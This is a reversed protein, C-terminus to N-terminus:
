LARRVEMAGAPTLRWRGCAASVSRQRAQGFRVGGPASRWRVRRCVPASTGDPISLSLNGHTVSGVIVPGIVDSESDSEDSQPCQKQEVAEVNEIKM